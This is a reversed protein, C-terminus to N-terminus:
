PDEPKGTFIENKGKQCKSATPGRPDAERMWGKSASNDVTDSAAGEETCSRAARHTVEARIAQMLLSADM